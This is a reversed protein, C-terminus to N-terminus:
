GEYFDSTVTRKLANHVLRYETILCDRLDSSAGFDIVRKSIKLSFPSAKNLVDLVSRSWQSGEKQLSEFIEEVSKGEFCSNILDLKSSLSFDEGTVDTTNKKLVDEISDANGKVLRDFLDSLKDSPVFHTAIGAKVVDIGRLRHGTLGLYIGLKGELRPLFYSAGSENLLGIMTEPMAFLTKETAVRYRGHIALGVGAGMTIGNCLSLVPIKCMKVAYNMRYQNNFVAIGESKKNIISVIDGGACFARDGSGKIIVFSATNEWEKLKPYMLDGMRKNFVNLVKPRNLTIIGINNKVDLLVDDTSISSFTRFLFPIRHKPLFMTATQLATFNSIM